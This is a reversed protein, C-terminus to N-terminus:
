AARRPLAQRMSAPATNLKFTSVLRTLEKAQTNLNASAAAAQEVLAANQQTLADIQSIAKNVGSIGDSQENSAIAIDGIIRTVEQVGAVIEGLSDGSRNVLDSSEDVRKASDEILEKIEKAATASRGALDRVESAVVAFGRGQNGARAAEVSANLALLNTQFAIDNIVGIIDSIKKSSNNLGNMAEVATEVISGGRLAQESANVALENASSANTANQKVTATMEEMSSATEQLNAAQEVTRASLNNNGQAIDTSDGSVNNAVALIESLTKALNDFCQNITSQLMAFQGTFSGEMRKTLDGNSLATMAALTKELVDEVTNRLQVQETIDTAFKVVKVPAGSADFVPNYSAQIWIEQGTKSIRKFEGSQYEGRRLSDWFDRYTHSAADEADVFLKHPQGQIENLRYGLANLFNDNATRITSDLNFEIVAQSRSLAEIQGKLDAAETKQATIDSAYKVVTVPKGNEDLLPNYSAQIWIEKGQKSIRKFEGASFEGRNLSEWFRKYEMGNRAEADVFMSHHKGQIEELSYGTAALFNDNATIITGDLNFHIVALSRNIADIQSALERKEKQDALSDSSKRNRYFGTLGNAM